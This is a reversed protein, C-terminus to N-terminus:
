VLPWDLDKFIKTSTNIQTCPAVLKSYKPQISSFVWISTKSLEGGGLNPPGINRSNPSVLNCSSGFTNGCYLWEMKESKPSAWVRTCVGQTGFLRERDREREWGISESARKTSLYGVRVRNSKKMPCRYKLSAHNPTAGFVPVLFVRPWLCQVAHKLCSLWEVQSLLIGGLQPVRCSWKILM